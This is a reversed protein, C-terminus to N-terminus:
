TDATSAHVDIEVHLPRDFWTVDELVMDLELVYRGAHEPATLPVPVITDAGVALDCPLPARREPPLAAGSQAAADDPHWRVGLRFPPRGDLGWAWPEPGENRVRAYITRAAGSAMRVPTADLLTITCRLPQDALRAGLDRGTWLPDILDRGAVAITPAPLVPGTAHLVQEIQLRDTAPVDRLLPNVRDEPLYYAANLEGGGPALLGPRAAVNAAVKERRAAVGAVLLSLHWIPLDEFRAPSTPLALEHQVGRFRLTGDNRVLRTQFDPFWPTGALWHRPDPWLWRLTFAVQQADRRATLEPLADLLESSVVEDGALLLIWDGRCEAHLWALASHRPGRDFRLVRDAVAAYHGLYEEPATSDAAVVIEDAVARLPELLARVRPGLDRTPCLVSLTM